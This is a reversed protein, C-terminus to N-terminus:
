NTTPTNNISRPHTTYAAQQPDDRIKATRRNNCSKFTWTRSLVHSRKRQYLKGKFNLKQTPVKNQGGGAVHNANDWSGVRSKVNYNLRQIPVKKDGGSAVHGINQLSGTILFMFCLEEFQIIGIKSRAEVQVPKNFIKKDGGQATRNAYDMSGVKSKAEIRLPKHTIKVQSVPAQHDSKNVTRSQVNAYKPNKPVPPLSPARGGSAASSTRSGPRVSTSRM